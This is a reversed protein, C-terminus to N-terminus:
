RGAAEGASTRRVRRPHPAAADIAPETVVRAVLVAGVALAAGGALYPLRLEVVPPHQAGHGDHRGDVEGM